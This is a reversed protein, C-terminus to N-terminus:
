SRVTHVRRRDHGYLLAALALGACLLAAGLAELFLDATGGAPNAGVVADMKWGFPLETPVRAPRLTGDANAVVEEVAVLSTFRTVLHYRVAHDVIALRVREREEDDAARRWADMRESVLQRAWLTTIGPHFQATEAAFPIEQLVPGAAAQGAVTKGKRPHHPLLM